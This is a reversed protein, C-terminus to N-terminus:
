DEIINKYSVWFHKINLKKLFPIIHGIAKRIDEDDPHAIAFMSHPHHYKDNLVKVLAKGFHTKIQGNDFSERKKTPSTDSARAGKVEVMLTEGNRSAELDIGHKQGLCFRDGIEWGQDELHKKLIKVVEDETLKM